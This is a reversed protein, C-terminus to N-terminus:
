SFCFESNMIEKLDLTGKPPIPPVNNEPLDFDTPNDLLKSLDDKFDQFVCRDSYMSIFSERVATYLHSVDGSVAFSDHIMYFDQIGYNDQLNVITLAMAAADNGHTFNAPTAALSKRVDVKGTELRFTVKSRTRSGVKRDYLFIQTKLQDSKQYDSCIPFGSPTIWQLEKGQKCLVSAVSQLYEMAKSASPLTKVIADYSINALFRAAHFREKETKAIPHKKITQYAVQKQLPKMLDEVYQKTMGTAKSSYPFCMVARKLTSRDPGYALWVKAKLVDDSVKPITKLWKHAEEIHSRNEPKYHHDSSTFSKLSVVVKDAVTQYLDQPKSMPVLNCLLGESKSLSAASYHQVGSNTGDMSYPLYGVFGDGEDIFRKYEFCAALFQMPSAAESWKELTAKYDNAIELLLEHKSDVFAVRQDLTAKSIKEFDCCNAIHVKLWYANNGEVKYGRYFQFLSKIHDARHYNFAPVCNFRGRKDLNWPITFWDHVALETATQLDQRMVASTGKIEQATKRQERQDEKVQAIAEISMSTAFDKPLRPFEPPTQKPFKGFTLEKEWCWQLVELMDENISLPTAQLANLAKVYLPEGKTFQHEVNNMQRRTANRILKVSSALFPDSYCGTDFATWPAPSGLPIPKLMPQQWSMHETSKKLELEAEETFVLSSKRSIKSVTETRKEFINCHELVASLVPSANSSKRRLNLRKGGHDKDVGFWLSSFGNKTTINRISKLRVEPSSQTKSVMKIIRKNDKNVEVDEGEVLDFRLCEKDILRGIEQTLSSVGKGSLAANYCAHLGLYALTEPKIHLITKLWEPRRGQSARATEIDKRLGETVRPLAEQLQRFEPKKESVDTATANKDHWKDNGDSKMTNEYATSINDDNEM